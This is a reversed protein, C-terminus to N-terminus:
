NARLLFEIAQGCTNTNSPSLNILRGQDIITNYAKFDQQSEGKANETKRSKLYM